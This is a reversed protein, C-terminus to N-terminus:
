INTHESKSSLEDEFSRQSFVQCLSPGLYINTPIIREVKGSVSITTDNFNDDGDIKLIMFELIRSKSLSQHRELESTSSSKGITMLDMTVRRLKVYIITM